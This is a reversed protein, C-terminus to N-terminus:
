SAEVQSRPFLTASLAPLATVSLYACWALLAVLVPGAVALAAGAAFLGGWAPVGVVAAATAVGACAVTLAVHARGLPTDDRGFCGCAVRGGSRLLVVAVVAFLVYAFALLAAPLRGGAVLVLGAVVVEAVGVLRAIPRLVAPRRPARPAVVAVLSALMSATADAAVLKAVGAGAVLVATAATLPALAATADM